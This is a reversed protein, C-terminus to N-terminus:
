LFREASLQLQIFHTAQRPREQVPFTSNVIQYVKYATTIFQVLSFRFNGHSSKEPIQPLSPEYPKPSRGSFLTFFGSSLGFIREAGNLRM